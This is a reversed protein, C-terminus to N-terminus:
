AGRARREAQAFAQELRIVADTYRSEDATDRADNARRMARVVAAAAPHRVDTMQPYDIQLAPDTEYALWREVVADHRSRLVAMRTEAAEVARQRVRQRTTRLLHVGALLIAVFAAVALLIGARGVIAAGLAAVAIVGAIGAFGTWFAADPEIVDLEASRGDARARDGGKLLSASSYTAIGAILLVGVVVVLLTVVMPGM